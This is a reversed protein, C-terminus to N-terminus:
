PAFDLITDFHRAGLGRIAENWHSTSVSNFSSSLAAYIESHLQVYNLMVFQCGTFALAEKAVAIHPEQMCQGLTQFLRLVCAGDFRPASLLIRAAARIALAQRGPQRRPWAHLLRRLLEAAMSPVYAVFQGGATVLEDEDSGAADLYHCRMLHTWARAYNQLIGDAEGGMGIHEIAYRLFETWSHGHDFNKNKASRTAASMNTMCTEATVLAVEKCQRQAEAHVAELYELRLFTADALARSIHDRRHPLHKHIARLIHLRASSTRYDEFRMETILRHIFVPTIYQDMTTEANADSLNLSVGNSFLISTLGNKVFHENPEESESGSDLSLKNAFLAEFVTDVVAERTVRKPIRKQPLSFALRDTFASAKAAPKAPYAEDDEESSSGGTSDSRPRRLIQLKPKTKKKKVNTTVTTKVAVKTAVQKATPSPGVSPATASNKTKKHRHGIVPRSGDKLLHSRRTSSPSEETSPLYGAGTPTVADAQKTPRRRREHSKPPPAPSFTFVSANPNLTTPPKKADTPASKPPLKPADQATAVELTPRRARPKSRPPGDM